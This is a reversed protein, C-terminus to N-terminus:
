HCDDDIGREAVGTVGFAMRRMFPVSSLFKEFRILLRAFWRKKAFIQLFRIADAQSLLGYGVSGFPRISIETFGAKKLSSLLMPQYFIIEEDRDGLYDDLRGYFFQRLLHIPLFDDTPEFFCFRCGDKVVRAIESLAFPLSSVSLHHLGGGVVVGDFTSDKFPLDIANGCVLFGCRNYSLIKQSIDLAVVDSGILKMIENGLDGQGSMIELIRSNAPLSGLEQIIVRYLYELYLRTGPLSRHFCVYEDAIRDFQLEGNANGMHGSKKMAGRINEGEHHEEEITAIACDFDLV